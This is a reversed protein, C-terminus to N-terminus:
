GLRYSVICYSVIRCSEIRHSVIRYSAERYSVIDHGLGVRVDCSPVLSGIFYWVECSYRWNMLSLLGWSEAQLDRNGPLVRPSKNQYM